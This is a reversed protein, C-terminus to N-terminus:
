RGDFYEDDGYEQKVDHMKMLEEATVGYRGPIRQRTIFPNDNRNQSESQKVLAYMLEPSTRFIRPRKIAYSLNGTSELINIQLRIRSIATGLISPNDRLIKNTRRYDLIENDLVDIIPKIKNSLSMSLLTPFEYMMCQIDEISLEEGEQHAIKSNRKEYLYYLLRDYKRELLEKSYQPRGRAVRRNNLKEFIEDKREDESLALFRKREGKSAKEQNEKLTKKFEEIDSKDELFDIIAKKVADKNRGLISSIETLTIGELVIKRYAEEIQEEELPKTDVEKVSTVKTHNKQNYRAIMVRNSNEESINGYRNLLNNIKTRGFTPKQLAIERISKNQELFMEIIEMEDDEFGPIKEM